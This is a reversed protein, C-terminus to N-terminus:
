KLCGISIGYENETYNNGEVDQTALGSYCADIIVIRRQINNNEILKKLRDYPIASVEISDKTSNIGTLYFEKSTERYGHGVYYFILTETDEDNKFFVRLKKYIEDHNENLITIINSVALGIIDPNTLISYIDNINGIAPKIPNMEVYDSVGILIAKTKNIDFPLNSM